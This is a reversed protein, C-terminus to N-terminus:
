EVNLRIKNSYSSITYIGSCIHTYTNIYTHSYIHVYTYMHTCVYICIYIYIHMGGEQRQGALKGVVVEMEAGVLYFIFYIWGVGATSFSTYGAVELLM